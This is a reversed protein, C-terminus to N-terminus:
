QRKTGYVGSKGYVPASLWEMSCKDEISTAVILPPPPEIDEGQEELVINEAGKKETKKAKKIKCTQRAHITTHIHTATFIAL